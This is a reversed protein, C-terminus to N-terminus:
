HTSVVFDWVERATKPKWHLDRELPFRLRGISIRCNELESKLVSGIEVEHLDVIAWLYDPDKPDQNLIYWTGRGYPNFIVCHVTQDLSSGLPFQSQLKKEITTTFLKM